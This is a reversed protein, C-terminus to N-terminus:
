LRLLGAALSVLVVATAAGLGVWFGKAFDPNKM